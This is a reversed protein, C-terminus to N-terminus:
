RAAGVPQLAAVIADTFMPLDSPQRSTILNGDKVVAEDEYQMGANICDDRIGIWCTARRGRALGASVLLQPGHCVAAILKGQENMDRVLSVMAPNLRMREPAQGGPIIIADFDNASVDDARVDARVSVTGRKGHYTRGAETGVVTVQAGEEKMRRLPDALEADEFGEEALIAIRRGELRM